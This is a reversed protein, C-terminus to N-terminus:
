NEVRLGIRIARPDTRRALLQGFQENRMLPPIARGSADTDWTRDPDVLVAARDVVGSESSVLNFGSVTLLVRRGGIPLRITAELDLAQVAAERCSNREAFDGSIAACGAATLLDNLGSVAQRSVPDNGGSGDGNADVGHRFGPTFPLGSQWRYRAAISVGSPHDFRARLALRHPMDYDSRGVTWDSAGTATSLVLARDAPDASRQNLLNDRTESWTYSGGFSLGGAGRHEIAVTAEKHEAYGTSVLGWVNDFAEFRRNSGPAAVLLGDYQHLVGWIARGGDGQALPAVQRNIDERRLLYDTHQWGGGVTITTGSGLVQTFRADIVAARPARVRDAFFTIPAATVGSMGAPWGINGTARTVEVDGDYRATEILDSLSYRGPVLGGSLRLVTVGAGDADWTIAGRPGIASSKNSPVLANNLGFTRALAANPTAVDTPLSQTEYRIGATVTLSPSVQWDDQAFAALETMALTTSRVATSAQVWSGFGAAFDDLSGFEAHGGANRIGGSELTRRSVSGGIRVLHGGMPLALTEGLSLRREAYDGALTAAGGFAIGDSVVSTSPLPAAGWERRALQVGVQTSSSWDAGWLEFGARASLDRASLTAGAGSVASSTVLPNEEDWAALGVRLALRSRASAQWTVGGSTTLGTWTRVTPAIYRAIDTTGAVVLLSDRLEAGGPFPDATPVALRRYDARLSWSLTDGVTSGGFVIGGQLSSAASDAPNDATSSGLSAGSWSVWPRFERRGEGTTTVMSVTSGLAPPTTADLSFRDVAVLSIADRAFIPASRVEDPLLPHRFLLEEMGDVVLRAEGGGFGNGSRLLGDSRDGGFGLASSAFTVDTASRHRALEEIGAGSQRATAGAAVTGSFRREEVGTIPPPRRVLVVDLRTVEGAQVPIAVTRVPQYGVQEALLAYEGTRLNGISFSGNQAGRIVVASAGGRSVTITADPVPMGLDDIVRGAITGRGGGQARAVPPALVLLALVGIASRRASPCFAAM